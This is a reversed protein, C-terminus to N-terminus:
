ACDKYIKMLEDHELFVFDKHESAGDWGAAKVMDRVVPPIFHWMVGTGQSAYEGTRGNYASHFGLAAYPTICISAAPLMTVLTCASLCMGDIRVTGGSLRIANFRDVYDELLGGGDFTITYGGALAPACCAVFMLLAVLHKM